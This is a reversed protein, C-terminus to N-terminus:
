RPSHRRLYEDRLRSATELHRRARKDTTTKKGFGDIILLDGGRFFCALRHKFIKICYVDDIEKRFKEQNHIRGVECLRRLVADFKTKHSTDLAEYYEKGRLRGSGDPM